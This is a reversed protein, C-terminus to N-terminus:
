FSIIRQQQHREAEPQDPGQHVDQRQQYRVVQAPVGQQQIDHEIRAQGKIGQENEDADLGILLLAALAQVEPLAHGDPQHHVQKHAGKGTQKHQHEAGNRCGAKQLLIDVQGHLLKHGVLFYKNFVNAFFGIVVGQGM